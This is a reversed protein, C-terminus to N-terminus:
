IITVLLRQTQGALALANHNNKLLEVHAVLLSYFLYILANYIIHWGQCSVPTEYSPFQLNTSISNNSDSLLELYCSSSCKERELADFRQLQQLLNNGKDEYAYVGM